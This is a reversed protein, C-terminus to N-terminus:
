ALKNAPTTPSLDRLTFMIPVASFYRELELFHSNEVTAIVSLFVLVFNLM